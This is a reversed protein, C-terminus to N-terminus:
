SIWAQAAVIFLTFVDASIKTWLAPQGVLHMILSSGLFHSNQAGSRAIFPALYKATHLSITDSSVQARTDEWTQNRSLM